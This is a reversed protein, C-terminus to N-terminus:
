GDDGTCRSCSRCRKVRPRYKRCKGSKERVTRMCFCAIIKGAKQYRNNNARLEKKSLSEKNNMYTLM